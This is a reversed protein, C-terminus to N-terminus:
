TELVRSYIENSQKLGEACKTTKGFADSETSWAQEGLLTVTGASIFADPIVDQVWTCPSMLEPENVSEVHVM